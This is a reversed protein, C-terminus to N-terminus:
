ALVTLTQSERQELGGDGRWTVTLTGSREVRMFFALYPNAAVAAHLDVACVLSGEFHCEMRRVLYRPLPIGQPGQRYGTEMPHQILARIEVVDGARAEKPAHLLTRHTSQM